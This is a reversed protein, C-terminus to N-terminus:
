VRERPSSVGVTRQAACFPEHQWTKLQKNIEEFKLWCFSARDLDVCRSERMHAVLSTGMSLLLGVAFLFTFGM